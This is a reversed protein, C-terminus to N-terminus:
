LHFTQWRFNCLFENFENLFHIINLMSFTLQHAQLHDKLRFSKSFRQCSFKKEINEEHTQLHNRLAQKSTLRKDCVHCKFRDSNEHQILSHKTLESKNSFLKECISCKFKKDHIGQHQKFESKTKAIFNCNFHDCKFQKESHAKRIHAALSIKDRCKKKCKM